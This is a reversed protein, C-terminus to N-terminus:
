YSSKGGTSRLLKVSALRWHLQLLDSLLFSLIVFPRFYAAIPNPQQGGPEKNWHCGRTSSRLHAGAYLSNHNRPSDWLATRVPFRTKQKAFHISGDKEQQGPKLESEQAKGWCNSFTVPDLGVFLSVGHLDQVIDLLLQSLKIRGPPHSASTLM